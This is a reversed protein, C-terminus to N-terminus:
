RLSGADSGAAYQVHPPEDAQEPPPAPVDPVDPEVPLDAKGPAPPHSAM